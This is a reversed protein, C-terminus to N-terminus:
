NDMIRSCEDRATRNLSDPRSVVGSVVNNREKLDKVQERLIARIDPRRYRRTLLSVVLHL